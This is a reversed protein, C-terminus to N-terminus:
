PMITRSRPQLAEAAVYCTRAPNTKWFALTFFFPHFKDNGNIAPMGKTDSRAWESVLAFGLLFRLHANKTRRIHFYLAAFILTLCFGLYNGGLFGILYNLLLIAVTDTPKNTCICNALEQKISSPLEPVECAPHLLAECSLANDYIIEKAFMNYQAYFCEHGPEIPRDPPPHVTWVQGTVGDSLSTTWSNITFNEGLKKTMLRVYRDQAESTTFSPIDGGLTTCLEKAEKFSKTACAMILESSNNNTQNTTSGLLSSTANLHVFEFQRCAILNSLFFAALSTSVAYTIILLVYVCPRLKRVLCFETEKAKSLGSFLHKIVQNLMLFKLFPAVAASIFGIGVLSTSDMRTSVLVTASAILVALMTNILLFFRNIRSYNECDEPQAFFTSYEDSTEFHERLKNYLNMPTYFKVLFTALSIDPLQESDPKKAWAAIASM